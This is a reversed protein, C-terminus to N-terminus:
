YLLLCWIFQIENKSYGDSIIHSIIPNYNLKFHNRIYNTLNEADKCWEVSKDNTCRCSWNGWVYQLVNSSVHDSFTKTWAPVTINEIKDEIALVFLVRLLKIDSSIAVYSMCSYNLKGNKRMQTAEDITKPTNM